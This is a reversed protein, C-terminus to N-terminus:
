VILCFKHMENKKEKGNKLVCQASLSSYKTFIEFILVKRGLILQIQKQVCSWGQKSLLDM